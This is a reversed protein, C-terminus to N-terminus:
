VNVGTFYSNRKITHIAPYPIGEYDLLNQDVVEFVFAKFDAGEEIKKIRLNNLQKILKDKGSFEHKLMINLFKNLEEGFAPNNFSKEQDM